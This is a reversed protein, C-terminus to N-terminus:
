SGPYGGNCDKDSKAPYTVTVDGADAWINNNGILTKIEQPTLQIETGTGSMDVVQAGITPITGPVYKDRDSVWRGTLTEGNYSAYYPYVTLVGTLPNLTGGYVTGADSLSINYTGIDAKAILMPIFTMDVPQASTTVNIQIGNCTKGGMAAYQTSIRNVTGFTWSDIVTNGNMFRMAIGSDAQNNNLYLSHTQSLPIVFEPVQFITSQVAGNSTSKGKIHYVGNGDSTFTLGNKTETFATSPKLASEGSRTVNVANWGSIPCINEYPAYSTATSGEEIQIGTTADITTGNGVRAHVGVETQKEITFTVKSNGGNYFYGGDTLNQVVLGFPSTVSATYTGPPLTVTAPYGYSWSNGTATGSATVSGDSNYTWTIGSNTRGGSTPCQLLNKGGGAPWPYDYGHLDQVPEIDVILAEIPRSSNLKTDFAVIPGSETVLETIVDIQTFPTGGDVTYENDTLSSLAGYCQRILAAAADIFAQYGGSLTTAKNKIRAYDSLLKSWLTNLDDM